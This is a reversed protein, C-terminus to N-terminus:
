RAMRLLNVMGRKTLAGALIADDIKMSLRLMKVRERGLDDAIGDVVAPRNYEAEYADPDLLLYVPDFGELTTLMENSPNKGPIGIVQLGAADWTVFAVMSKIEGEVLLLPGTKTEPDCIFPAAPIGRIEQRYKGGPVDTGLLRHKLNNLKRDYGWVPISLTEYGQYVQGSYTWGLEWYNVWESPLGRRQWMQRAREDLQQHYRRWIEAENLRREAREIMAKAEEIERRAREVQAAHRREIEEPPLSKWEERINPNLEDIWAHDPHCKRCFWNWSPYDRDTFIVFRDRGGCQPCPGHWENPAAKFYNGHLGITAFEAPPTARM